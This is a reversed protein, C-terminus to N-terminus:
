AKSDSIIEFRPLNSIVVVVYKGTIIVCMLQFQCKIFLHLQRKKKTFLEPHLINGQMISSVKFRAINRLSVGKWGLLDVLSNYNIWPDCWSSTNEDNVIFFNM